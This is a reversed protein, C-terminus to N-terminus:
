GIKKPNGMEDYSLPQKPTRGSIDIQRSAGGSVKDLELEDLEVGQSKSNKDLEPKKAQRGSGGSM